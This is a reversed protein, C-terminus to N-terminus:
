NKTQEILEAVQNQEGKVIEKHKVQTRNLTRISASVEGALQNDASKFEIQQGVCLGM